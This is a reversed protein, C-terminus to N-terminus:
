HGAADNWLLKHLQMQFRVPLNDAVIWDALDTANLQGFSPSFLVEGVKGVLGHREIEFRAWDYDQRDCLVFKLQDNSGLFALNEILNRHQEGSAPTKLDMVKSVRPDVDAVPMAGSTELSVEYGEDCLAQLLVLCNPQALPEGGTVCVYRPSFSAVIAMIDALTKREGGHFAYETDCYHCRLPCGTLRVFVTPLGLSRSEGQLSYFIETIRLSTTASM